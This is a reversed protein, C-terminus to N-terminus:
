YQLALCKLQRWKGDRCRRPANGYQRDDEYYQQGINGYGHVQLCPDGHEDELSVHNLDSDCDKLQKRTKCYWSWSQSSRTMTMTAMRQHGQAFQSIRGVIVLILKSVGRLHQHIGCDEKDRRQQIASECHKAAM